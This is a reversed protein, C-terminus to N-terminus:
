SMFSCPSALIVFDSNKLVIFIYAISDLIKIWIYYQLLFFDCNLLQVATPLFTVRRRQKRCGACCLGHGSPFWEFVSRLFIHPIKSFGTHKNNVPPLCLELLIDLWKGASRLLAIWIHGTKCITLWVENRYIKCFPALSEPLKKRKKLPRSSCNELCESPRGSNQFIYSLIM